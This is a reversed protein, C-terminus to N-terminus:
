ESEEVSELESADLEENLYAEGEATIGYLGRSIRELLGYKALVPCRNRAHGASPGGLDEIATPTLNGYERILELIKNDSPVMWEAEQRM